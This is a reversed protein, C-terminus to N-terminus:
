VANAATRFVSFKIIKGSNDNDPAASSATSFKVTLDNGAYFALTEGTQVFRTTQELAKIFDSELKMVGQASCFMKTTGIDSLKIEGNGGFEFKGFMRNCGANGAFRKEAADFEIFAKSATIKAGGMEILNWRRADPIKAAPKLVNANTKSNGGCGGTEPMEGSQATIPINGTLILILFFKSLFLLRKRNM